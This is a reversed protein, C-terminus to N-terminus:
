LAIVAHRCMHCSDGFRGDVTTKGPRQAAPGARKRVSPAPPKKRLESLYLELHEAVHPLERKAAAASRAFRRAQPAADAM